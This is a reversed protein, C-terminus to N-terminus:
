RNCGERMESFPSGGPTKGTKESLKPPKPIVSALVTRFRARLVPCAGDRGEAHPATARCGGGCFYRYECKRCESDTNVDFSSEAWRRSLKSVEELGDSFVNGMCLEKRCLASCPYASGDPDVCLTLIGAACRPRKVRLFLDSGPDFTVGIRVERRGEFGHALESDRYTKELLRDYQELARAFGDRGWWSGGDGPMKPAPKPRNLHIYHAGLIQALRGLAPIEEINSPHPTFSIGCTIGSRGDIQQFLRVIREFSGSGRLADHTEAQAGDVSVQIDDVSTLIGDTLRDPLSGNTLLKIRFSGTERAFRLIEELDPHLFPEGGSFVIEFVGLTEAEEVLRKVQDLPMHGEPGGVGHVYCYECDLNCAKTLHLWLQQLSLGDISPAEGPRFRETGVGEVVGLGVLGELLALVGERVRPVPLGYHEAVRSVLEEGTAPQEALWDYVLRGTDSTKLWSVGEPLLLVQWGPSPTLFM